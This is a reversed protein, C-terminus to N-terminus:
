IILYMSSVIYHEFEVILWGITSSDICLHIAEYLSGTALKM